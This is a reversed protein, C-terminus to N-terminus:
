LSGVMVLPIFIAEHVVSAKQAAIEIMERMQKTIKYAGAVPSLGKSMELGLPNLGAAFRLAGGAVSGALGIALATNSHFYDHFNHQVQALYEKDCIGLAALIVQEFSDTQNRGASVGVLPIISIAAYKKRTRGYADGNRLQQSSIEVAEQSINCIQEYVNAPDVTKSQSLSKKFDHFFELWEDATSVNEVGGQVAIQRVQLRDMLESHMGAM